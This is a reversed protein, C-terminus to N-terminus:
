KDIRKLKFYVSAKSAINIAETQTTQKLVEFHLMVGDQYTTLEYDDKIKRCNICDLDYKIINSGSYASYGLTETGCRSCNKM